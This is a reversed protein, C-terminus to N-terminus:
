RPKVESFWCPVLSLRVDSQWFGVSGLRLVGSCQSINGFRDYSLGICYGAGGYEAAVICMVVRNRKVKAM